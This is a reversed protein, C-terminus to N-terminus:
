DIGKWFLGIVPMQAWCWPACRPFFAAFFISASENFFVKEESVECSTTALDYDLERNLRKRVQCKSGVAGRHDGFSIINSGFPMSLPICVRQAKSSMTTPFGSLGFVLFFIQNAPMVMKVNFSPNM